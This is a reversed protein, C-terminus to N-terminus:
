RACIQGRIMRSPYFRVVLGQSWNLLQFKNLLAFEPQDQEVGRYPDPQIPQPSEDSTAVVRSDGRLVKLTQEFVEQHVNEYEFFKLFKSTLVASCFYSTRTDIGMPM